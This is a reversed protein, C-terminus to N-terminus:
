SVRMCVSLKNRSRKRASDTSYTVRGTLIQHACRGQKQRAVIIHEVEVAYRAQIRIAEIVADLIENEYVKEVTANQM